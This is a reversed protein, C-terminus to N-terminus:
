FLSFHGLWKSPRNCVSVNEQTKTNNWTILQNNEIGKLVTFLVFVCSFTEMHVHGLPSNAQVFVEPLHDGYLDLFRIPWQQGFTKDKPIKQSVTAPCLVERIRVM